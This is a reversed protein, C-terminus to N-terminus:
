VCDFNLFKGGQNCLERQNKESYGLWGSHTAFYDNSNDRLTVVETTVSQVVIVVFLAVSFIGRSPRTVSLKPSCFAGMSEITFHGKPFKMM